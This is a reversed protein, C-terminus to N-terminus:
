QWMQGMYIKWLYAGKRTEFQVDELSLPLSAVVRWSLASISIDADNLMNSLPRTIFSSGVVVFIISM